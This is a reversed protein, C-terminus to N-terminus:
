QTRGLAEQVNLGDNVIGKVELTMQEISEGEFSKPFVCGIYPSTRIRGSSLSDM